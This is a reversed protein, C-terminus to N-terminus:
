FLCANPTQKLTIAVELPTIEATCVKLGKYQSRYPLSQDYFM